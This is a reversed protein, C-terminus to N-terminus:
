IAFGSTTNIQPFLGEFKKGIAQEKSVDFYAECKKNRFIVRLEQDFANIIFHSTTQMEELTLHAYAALAEM